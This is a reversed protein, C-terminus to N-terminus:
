GDPSVAVGHIPGSHGVFRAVETKTELDWVRVIHDWCGCVAFREGQFAIGEVGLPHELRCLELGQDFDWLRLTHDHSGSLLRRGDPSLVVGSIIRSHGEFQRVVQKTSLNWLRIASALTENDDKGGTVCFQQDTCVAVCHALGPHRGTTTMVEATEVNWARVLRDNNGAFVLKGDPSFAVGLVVDLHTIRRTERQRELDWVIITKDNGGSSACHRGDPSIALGLVLAAHGDFRKLQRGTEVDWLRIARDAGGSVARRGDRSLAFASVYSTHGVFRRVEGPSLPSLDAEADLANEGESPGTSDHSVRGAQGDAPVHGAHGMRFVTAIVRTAGLLETLALAGLLCALAVGVWRRHRAAAPRRSAATEVWHALQGRLVQAVESASQFRDAPDQARLRAIVEVLGGPTAPNLSKIPPPTVNGSAKWFLTTAKPLFRPRGTCMAYLTSGLSYLDSRHDVAAGRAQEPSMYQPTGAVLGRFADSDIARALGFDTIKARDTGSELLINGPKIDRHILGHAHAAALGEAVQAGIRLIQDFPLTGDRDLREQLSPGSIYQMVLFPLGRPTEQVTHITVVYDHSIAAAAQAEQLFWQRAQPDSALAPTMVKIAVTRHLAPDIAQL